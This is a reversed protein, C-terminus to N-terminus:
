KMGITPGAKRCSQKIKEAVDKPIPVLKKECQPCRESFEVFDYNHETCHLINRKKPLDDVLWFDLSMKGYTLIRKVNEARWRIQEITEARASLESALADREEDELHIQKVNEVDHVILLIQAYRYENESKQRSTVM